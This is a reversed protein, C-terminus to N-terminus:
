KAARIDKLCLAVILEVTKWRDSPMGLLMEATTLSYLWREVLSRQVAYDASELDKFDLMKQASQGRSSQELELADLSEVLAKATKTLDKLREMAAVMEGRLAAANFVREWAPVQISHPDPEIAEGDPGVGEPMQQQEPEVTQTATTM